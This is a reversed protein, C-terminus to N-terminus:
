PAQEYYEDSVGATILRVLETGSPNNHGDGFPLLKYPVAYPLLNLAATFVDICFGSIVDTGKVSVFERFSVRNPM